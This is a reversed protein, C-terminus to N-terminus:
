SSIGLSEATGLVAILMKMAGDRIM